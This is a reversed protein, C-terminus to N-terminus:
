TNKSHTIQHDVLGTVSQNALIYEALKEAWGEYGLSSPHFGDECYYESSPLADLPLFGLSSIDEALQQSALNLADSRLALIRRMPNPLHPLKAFQPIGSLICTPRHLRSNLQNLIDTVEKQWRNASTWGVTDNFGHVIVVIDASGGAIQPCLIQRTQRVTYGNLAIVRWHISQGRHKHLMSALHGALAEQNSAAGVGAATSEGLLLLRLAPGNGDIFGSLDAAEHVRLVRHNLRWAQWLLVPLSLAAYINARRSLRRIDARYDTM